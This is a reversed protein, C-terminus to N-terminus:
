VSEAVFMVMVVKPLAFTRVMVDLAGALTVTVVFDGAEGAVFAAGTNDFIESKARLSVNTRTGAKTKEVRPM